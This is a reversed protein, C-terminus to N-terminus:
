LSNSNISNGKTQRSPCSKKYRFDPLIGQKRLDAKKDRVMDQSRGLEEAIYKNTYGKFSLDILLDIEEKKWNLKLLRNSIGLNSIMTRVSNKTRNLKKAIKDLSLGKNYCFKLQEIEYASWRVFRKKQTPSVRRAMNVWLPEKGLINIEVNEWHIRQKNNEAWKWFSEVNIKYVYGKYLKQKRAPLGYRKILNKITGPHVNLAKALQYPTLSDTYDAMSGLGIRRAKRLVAYPKRKLKKAIYEISREGYFRKLYDIEENKWKKRKYFNYKKNWYSVTDKTVNLEEAVKKITKDEIIFKKYLLDRDLM